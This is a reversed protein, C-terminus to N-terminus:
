EVVIGADNIVKGWLATEAEVFQAFAQRDATYVDIGRSEFDKRLADSQLAKQLAASMKDSINEPLDKPAFLGFWTTAEYDQIGLEQLTPVDPLAPSRQSSSVGLAIVRGSQIHSLATPLPEMLLEIQKGILDTMAPAGGRYPVHIWQAGTKLKLLETQVHHSTGAGASGYHLTAPKEKDQRILQDLTKWSSDAATVAVSAVSGIGGITVLDTEPKYGANRYLQPAVAITSAAGLLFTYGDAPSQVASLTGITGGAGPRNEVVISTDLATGLHTFAIRAVTDNIGGAPFPVIVRVAREPWRDPAAHVPLAAALFPFSFGFCQLARSIKKICM